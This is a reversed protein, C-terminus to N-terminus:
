ATTSFTFLDIVFFSMGWKAKLLLRSHRSLEDRNLKDVSVSEQALGRSKEQYEQCYDPFPVCLQDVEKKFYSHAAGQTCSHFGQGNPMM